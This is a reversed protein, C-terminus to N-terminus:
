RLGTGTPHLRHHQAPKEENPQASRALPQTHHRLSKELESAEPGSSACLLLPHYLFANSILTCGLRFLSFHILTRDRTRAIPSLISLLAIIIM